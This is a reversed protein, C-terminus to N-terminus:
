YYSASCLRRRWPLPEALERLDEEEGDSDEDEARVQTAEAEVPLQQHEREQSLFVEHVMDMTIPPMASDYAVMWHQRSMYSPMFDM